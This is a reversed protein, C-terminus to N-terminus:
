VENVGELFDKDVVNNILWTENGIGSSPVYYGLKKTLVHSIRQEVNM